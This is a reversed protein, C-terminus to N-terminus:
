ETKRAARLRASTEADLTGTAPLKNTQQFKKLADVTRRGAVGDAVGVQYGLGALIRQMEIVTMPEKDANPRAPQAVQPSTAAPAPAPLLNAAAGAGESFAGGPFRKDLAAFFDRRLENEKEPYERSGEEKVVSSSKDFRARYTVSSPGLTIFVRASYKVYLHSGADALFKPETRITGASPNEDAIYGQEALVALVATRIAATNARYSRTPLVTESIGGAPKADGSLESEVYGVSGCAALWYMALVILACPQDSEVNL